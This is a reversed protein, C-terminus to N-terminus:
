YVLYIPQTCHLVKPEPFDRRLEEVHMLIIELDVAEHEESIVRGVYVHWPEKGFDHYEDDEGWEALIAVYRKTGEPDTERRVNAKARNCIDMVLGMDQLQDEIFSVDQGSEMKDETWYVFVDGVMLYASNRTRM